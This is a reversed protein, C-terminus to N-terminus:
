LSFKQSGTLPTDSFDDGERGIVTVYNIYHVQNIFNFQEVWARCWHRSWMEPYNGTTSVKVSFLVSSRCRHLFYKHLVISLDDMHIYMNSYTFAIPLLM